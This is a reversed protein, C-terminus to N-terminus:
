RVATELERVKEMFRRSFGDVEAPTAGAAQFARRVQDDRLQSALSAFWRAHELPVRDINADLGDYDLHLVGDKVKEIFGEAQYDELRWKSRNSVLGGMRGFTAGLDGILYRQEQGTATTARVVDNNAAGRIDWNNLMTMLILLGSLEKRGVFPNQHFTWEEDTEVINPDRRSFRAYAFSGSADIHGRARELSNARDILGSDVLYHEEVFYGLAHVLRSAAIEARAEPGFKVDWTVGNVDTVVIKPQTGSSNEEVFIFPGQPVRAEGGMGWFLDRSAIAGPDTWLVRPPDAGGGTGVPQSQRQASIGAVSLVLVCMRAASIGSNSLHMM